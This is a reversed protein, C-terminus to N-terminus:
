LHHTPAVGLKSAYWVATSGALMLLARFGMADLGQMVLYVSLATLVGFCPIWPGGQVIGKRWSRGYIWGVGFLALMGLWWLEVWLDAVLGPAAGYAGVWGVTNALERTPLGANGRDINPVGLM